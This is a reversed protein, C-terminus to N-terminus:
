RERLRHGPSTVMIQVCQPEGAAGVTPGHGPQPRGTVAGADGATPADYWPGGASGVACDYLTGTSGNVPGVVPSGNLVGGGGEYAGGATVSGNM